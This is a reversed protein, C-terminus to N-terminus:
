PDRRVGWGTVGPIAVERRRSEDQWGEVGHDGVELVTLVVTGSHTLLRLDLVLHRGLPKDPDPPLLKQYEPEVVRFDWNGIRLHTGWSLNTTGIVRLGQAVWLDLWQYTDEESLLREIAPRHKRDEEVTAPCYDDIMPVSGGIERLRYTRRGLATQLFSLTDYATVRCSQSVRLEIPSLSSHQVEFRGLSDARTYPFTMGSPKLARVEVAAGLIHTSSEDALVVGRVSLFGDWVVTASVAAVALGFLLIRLVTKLTGYSRGSGWDVAKSWIQTDQHVVVERLSGIPERGSGGEQYQKGSLKWRRLDACRGPGHHEPYQWKEDSRFRASLARAPLRANVWM